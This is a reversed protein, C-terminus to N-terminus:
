GIIVFAVQTTVFYSVTHELGLYRAVVILTEHNTVLLDAAVVVQQAM